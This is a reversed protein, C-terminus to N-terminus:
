RPRRSGLVPGAWGAARAPRVADPSSRGGPAPPRGARPTLRNSRSMERTRRPGRPRVPATPAAGSRRPHPAPAAARARPARPRRSPHHELAPTGASRIAPRIGPRRRDEPEGAVVLPQREHQDLRRRVAHGRHREVDRAAHPPSPRHEHRRAVDARERPAPGASPSPPPLPPAQAGGSACLGGREPQVVDQVAPSGQEDVQGPSSRTQSLARQQYRASNIARATTLARAPGARAVRQAAATDRRAAAAELHAARRGPEAERLRNIRDRVMKRMRSARRKQMTKQCAM